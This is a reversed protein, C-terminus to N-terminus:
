FSKWLLIVRTVNALRFRIGRVIITTQSHSNAKGFINYYVMCIYKADGNVFTFKARATKNEPVNVNILLM